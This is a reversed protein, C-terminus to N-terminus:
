PLGANVRSKKTIGVFKGGWDVGSFNHIGILGQCKRHGTAQVREIVDIQRYKTGKGTLLKLRTIVLWLASSFHLPMQTLLGFM